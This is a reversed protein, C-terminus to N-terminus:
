FMTLPTKFMVPVNLVTYLVFIGKFLTLLMSCGDFFKFKMLTLSGFKAQKSDM